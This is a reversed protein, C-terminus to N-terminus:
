LRVAAAINCILRLPPTTTWVWRLVEGAERDRQADHRLKGAQGELQGIQLLKM